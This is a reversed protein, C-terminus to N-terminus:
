CRKANSKVEIQVFVVHIWSGSAFISVRVVEVSAFNGPVQSLDWFFFCQSEQLPVAHVHHVNRLDIDKRLGVHLGQLLFHSGELRLVGVQNVRVIFLLLM